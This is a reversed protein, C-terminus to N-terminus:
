LKLGSLVSHQQALDPAIRVRWKRPSRIIFYLFRSHEYYDENGNEAPLSSDVENAEPREDTEKM